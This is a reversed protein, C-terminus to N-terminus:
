TLSKTGTSTRATTMVLATLTTIMGSSYAVGTVLEGLPRLHTM